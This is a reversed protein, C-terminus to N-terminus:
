GTPAAPESPGPNAAAPAAAAPAAAPPAAAPPPPAPPPPATKRKAPQSSRGSGQKTMPGLVMTLRRGEMRFDREVKAVDALVEKVSNLVDRGLEQHAMERGRFRLTFQVRDGRELFTRARNVKIILDHQGIKPTRIRVEKMETEHHQARSKRDKKKQAYLHKGYDMIRCVPPSANPAVEVLDLGADRAM